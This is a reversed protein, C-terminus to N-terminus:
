TQCTTKLRMIERNQQDTKPNDEKWNNTSMRIIHQEQQTIMPEMFFFVPRLSTSVKHDVGIKLTIPYIYVKQLDSPVNLVSM